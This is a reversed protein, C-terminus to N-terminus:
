DSSPVPTSAYIVPLPNDTWITGDEIYSRLVAISRHRTHRAIIREPVNHAGAETALGRRLSHASYLAPDLGALKAYRKVIESVMRSSLRGSPQFWWAGRARVGLKTFVPEGAPLPSESRRRIWTQLTDVPCLKGKSRPIGVRYGHGERDTKSRRVTIIVGEESWELDRIDLAVLESRRLASSWGVSLIARDRLGIMLSDCQDVLLRLDSWSMAKSQEPAAGCTRKIGQMVRSVRDSRTPSDHGAARHIASISTMRRVITSVANEDACQSLYLCITEPSAPLDELEHVRCFAFFHRWDAEYARKTAPSLSAGAFQDVRQELAKLPVLGVM